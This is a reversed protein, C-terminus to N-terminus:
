ALFFSGFVYFDEVGYDGTHNPITFKHVPELKESLIVFETGEDVHRYEVFPTDPSTCLTGYIYKDEWYTHRTFTVQEAANVCIASSIMGIVVALLKLFIKRMTQHKQIMNGKVGPLVFYGM